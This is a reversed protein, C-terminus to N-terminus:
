LILFVVTPEILYFIKQGTVVHYRQYFLIIYITNLILTHMYTHVKAHMSVYCHIYIYTSLVYTHIHPHIYTSKDTHIYLYTIIYTHKFKYLSYIYECWVSTGGFDIHFDTYSGKLILFIYYNM